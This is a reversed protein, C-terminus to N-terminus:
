MDEERDRQQVLEGELELVRVENVKVNYAATYFRVLAAVYSNEAERTELTTAIGVRFRARQIDMNEKAYLINESELHYAAVSVEYNKWATRYQRGIETSQRAYVLEDRMAQLSAVKAQRRINGGMFLPVNLALGGSAGYSRNFLTFGAQSETKNYTYSGNFDLTPWYNAKAIRANLRSIDANRRFVDLTLNIDDLLERRTPALTTNLELSDDVIYEQEANEKGMWVNLNAFAATILSQQTLSDARRENYDVRAQLYDVKASTGTEFKVQSLLMRIRALALGTDIAVGQQHQLVVQAYSQIVQSVAYQMQEKLQAAALDETRSLQKKVLFMRGGDFIRWNAFVGANYNTTVANPNVQPPRGPDAFQILTNAKGKTVGAGGNINPLIGANGLTNNAEAQQLAVNAIRIDFNHALAKTIADQLTLRQQAAAPYIGIILLAIFVLYSRM